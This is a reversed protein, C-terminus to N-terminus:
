THRSITNQMYYYKQYKGKKNEETVEEVNVRSFAMIASSRTVPPRKKFSFKTNEAGKTVASLYTLSIVNM